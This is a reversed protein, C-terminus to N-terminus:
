CLFPACRGPCQSSATNQIPTLKEKESSILCYDPKAHSHTRVHVNGIMQWCWISFFFTICVIKVEYTSGSCPHDIHPFGAWGSVSSLHGILAKWTWVCKVNWEHLVPHIWNGAITICTDWVYATRGVVRRFQSFSFRTETLLGGSSWHWCLKILVHVTCIIRVAFLDKSM